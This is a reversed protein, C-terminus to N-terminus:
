KVNGEMYEKLLTQVVKRVYKGDREKIFGPLVMMWLLAETHELNSQLEM